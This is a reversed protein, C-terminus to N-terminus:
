EGFYYRAGLSLRDVDGSFDKAINISFDKTVFYDAALSIYVDEDDLELYNLAGRVEVNPFLYGRAGGAVRFGTDSDRSSNGDVDYDALTFEAILDVKDYPFIMGAGVQLLTTDVGDDYDLVEYDALGYFLEDIRYSGALAFGDGDIDVDADDLEADAILRLEGYNYRIGNDAGANVQGLALLGGLLLGTFGLKM